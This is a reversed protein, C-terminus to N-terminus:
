KNSLDANWQKWMQVWNIHKTMQARQKNALNQIERRKFGRYNLNQADFNCIHSFNWCFKICELRLVNENQVCRWCLSVTVFHNRKNNREKKRENRLWKKRKSHTNTHKVTRYTDHRLTSETTQNRVSSQAISACKYLCFAVKDLVKHKKNLSNHLRAQASSIWM